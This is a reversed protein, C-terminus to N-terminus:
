QEAGRGLGAKRKLWRWTYVVPWRLVSGAAVLVVVGTVFGNQWFVWALIPLGIAILVYAIRWHKDRSPTLAILQSAILWLCALIISTM